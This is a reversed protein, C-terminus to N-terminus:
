RQTRTAAQAPPRPLGEGVEVGWARGVYGARRRPLGVRAGQRLVSHPFAYHGAFGHTGIRPRVADRGVQAGGIGGIGTLMEFSETSVGHEPRRPPRYFALADLEPPEDKEGLAERQQPTLEIPEFKPVFIVQPAIQAGEVGIRASMTPEPVSITPLEALHPTASVARDAQKCGATALLAVSVILTAPRISRM